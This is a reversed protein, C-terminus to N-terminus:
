HRWVVRSFQTPQLSSSWKKGILCVPWIVGFYFLRPMKRSISSLESPPKYPCWNNFFHKAVLVQTQFLKSLFSQLQVRTFTHAPSLSCQVNLLAASSNSHDCCAHLIAQVTICGTFPKNLCIGSNFWIFIFWTIQCNYSCFEDKRRRIESENCVKKPASFLGFIDICIVAVKNGHLVHLWTFDWKQKRKM